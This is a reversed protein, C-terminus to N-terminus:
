EVEDLEDKIIRYFKVGDLAFLMGILKNMPETDKDQEEAPLNKYHELANKFTYTEDPLM